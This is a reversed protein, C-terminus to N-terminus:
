VTLENESQLEVGRKFIQAFVFVVGALLLSDGSVLNEHAVTVTKSLWKYYGDYFMAAVWILLIIYSIRELIKSVDLTFPDAVKIKSLVRTVLLAVWVELILIAVMFGVLGTYQWFDFQRLSYLNMGMYLNKAAVTNQTSVAYSIIIAGAKISLGVMALWAVLNLIALVFQTRKKM